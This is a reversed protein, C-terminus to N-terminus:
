VASNQVVRRHPREIVIVQPNQRRRRLPKILDDAPADKNRQSVLVGFGLKGVRIVAGARRLLAVEIVVVELLLHIFHMPWM